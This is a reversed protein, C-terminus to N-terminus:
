MTIARGEKASRLLAQIARVNGLSDELSVRPPAGDLIARVMDEVEGLYLLDPGEVVMPELRDSASGIYITERPGPKFPAPVVIVGESGVIEIHTRFPVRFGSDFQAFARPSFELQAVFAEDVGSSGVYAMGMVRVPEGAYIMRAYSLPYCGVDWLSGGHLKPNLRVDSEDTITFTFAGKVLLIEGIRGEKVLSQVMLTQPHHRYMFAEALVRGHERAVARMELLDSETTALPKECLVHKGARMARISWEAHLSNPLSVYVADIEDSDLMAQYSGFARPIGWERAYAQATELSRSAVAVLQSRQSARLAPILARNIRATSLLGWRVVSTQDTSM